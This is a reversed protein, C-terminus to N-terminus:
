RFLSEITSIVAESDWELAGRYAYQIKGNRDILFNSPYAYVNWDRVASGSRDLLIPFNLPIKEVFRAIVDEPEGINVTVVRFPKGKMHEVLRSLSPIEEVCPGCWTAWFNVLVVEDNVKSLDFPAQQFVDLALSPPTINGKFPYLNPERFAAPEAQQIRASHGVPMPPPQIDRMVSMAFKMITPLQAKANLDRETLQEEPRSQFGGKVGRFAHLFVSSGGSELVDAIERSRAYKTSYEPMLIYIPLNSQYALPLYSAKEGMNPRGDILNPLSFVLGKLIDPSGMQEQWRRATKLAYRTGRGQTAIFVEKFGKAKARRLIAVGDATDFKAISSRSRPLMYTAHLDAAWVDYGDETMVKVVPVMGERLGRESPFILFLSKGHSDYQLMNVTTGTDLEVDVTQQFAFANNPGYYVAALAALILLHPPKM